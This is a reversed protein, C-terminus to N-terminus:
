CMNACRRSRATPPSSSAATRRRALPSLVEILLLPASMSQEARRDAPDCTVLVDPYFLAGSAEIRLKMDAMYAACPTGRLHGRLLALANGALTVHRRTGGVMSFVEGRYFEHKDPQSNKWDIFEDLSMRTVPTAM